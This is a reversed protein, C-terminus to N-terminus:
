PISGLSLIYIKGGQFFYLDGFTQIIETDMVNFATPRTGIRPVHLKELQCLLHFKFIGTYCRETRRSFGTDIRGVIWVQLRQKVRVSGRYSYESFRPIQMNLLDHVVGQFFVKGHDLFGNRKQLFIIALHNVIRFMKKVSELVVTVIGQFGQKGGYIGSGM